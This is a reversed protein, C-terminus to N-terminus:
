SWAPIRLLSRMCRQWLSSQLVMLGVWSNSCHGINGPVSETQLLQVAGPKALCYVLPISFFVRLASVAARIPIYSSKDYTRKRDTKEHRKAL